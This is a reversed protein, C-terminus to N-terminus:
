VGRSARLSPHISKSKVHSPAVLSQQKLRPFLSSTIVTAGMPKLFQPLEGLVEHQGSFGSMSSLPASPLGLNGGLYRSLLVQSSIHRNQTHWGQLCLLMSSCETRLLWLLTFINVSEGECAKSGTYKGRRSSAFSQWTEQPNKWVAEGSM